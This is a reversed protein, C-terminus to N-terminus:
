LILDTGVRQRVFGLTLSLLLPPPPNGLSPQLSHDYFSAHTNPSSGRAAASKGKSRFSISAAQDEGDEESGDGSDFDEEKVEDEDAQPESSKSV